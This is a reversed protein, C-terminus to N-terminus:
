DIMQASTLLILFMVLFLSCAIWDPAKDESMLIHAYVITSASTIVAIIIYAVALSEKIFKM